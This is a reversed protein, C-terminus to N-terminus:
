LRIELLPISPIDGAEFAALSLELRDTDFRVPVDYHFGATVEAGDAPATAFVLEGTETDWSVGSGLPMAVGDVAVKLTAVEPLRISREYSAGGSGYTKKLAFRLTSGDGIAISQDMKGPLARDSRTSHDFPDRFRFGYLRGRAKEFLAVVAKLDQLSRIGSAADYRRRSDAWRANRSEHGSALLVVDTLREPGGLTGFAVSGPFKEDLFGNM